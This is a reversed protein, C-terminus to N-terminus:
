LNWDCFIGLAAPNFSVMVAQLFSMSSLGSWAGFTSLSVQSSLIDENSNELLLNEM